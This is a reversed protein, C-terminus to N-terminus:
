KNCSRLIHFFRKHVTFEAVTAIVGRTLRSLEPWFAAFCEGEQSWGQLPRPSLFRIRTVVTPYLSPGRRHRNQQGFPDM